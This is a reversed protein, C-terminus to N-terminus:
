SEAFTKRVSNWRHKYKNQQRLHKCISKVSEQQTQHIFLVTHWFSLPKAFRACGGDTECVRDRGSEQLSGSEM